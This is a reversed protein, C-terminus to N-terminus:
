TNDGIYSVINIKINPEKKEKMYKMCDDLGKEMQEYDTENDVTTIAHFM